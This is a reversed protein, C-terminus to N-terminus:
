QRGMRVAVADALGLRLPSALGGQLYATVGVFAPDNPVFLTFPVPAGMWAGGPLVGLISGVLVEGSPGAMGLGPVKTGCPFMPDADSAVLLFAQAGMPMSRTPDTVSFTVSRNLLPADDNVTMSGKPNAGCGYVMTSAVRRITWTGLTTSYGKFPGQTTSVVAIKEKPNTDLNPSTYTVGSDTGADWATAPFSASEIWSGNKDLLDAGNLGVFWDPSPAVMTVISLKPHSPFATFRVTISGPSNLGSGSVIREAGGNQIAANIEATLPGTGGTEAMTEIGATALGGPMWFVTSADHTAGILPSYHAGSPFDVPHTAQSWTSTFTVEYIASGNQAPLSGALLAAASLLLSSFTHNM